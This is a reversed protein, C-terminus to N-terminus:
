TDRKHENKVSKGYLYKQRVVWYDHKDIEYKEVYRIDTYIIDNPKASLKKQGKLPEGISVIKGIAKYDKEQELNYIELVGQYTERKPERIPELLVYEGIMEFNGDKRKIAIANAYDVKWYDIGDYPLLNKYNYGINPTAMYKSLFGEIDSENGTIKDAWTKSKTDFLGCEWKNNNMYIRVLKLGNPNSWTTTYPNVPNDRTFIEGVNDTQKRNMVVLYSFIIEDGAKVTQNILPREPDFSHNNGNGMTLGLPVSTVIGSITTNWEPRFTVDKYFKVGGDSIIEDQFVKPLEVLINNQICVPTSM